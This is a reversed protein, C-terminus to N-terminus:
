NKQLEKQVAAGGDDFTWDFALPDGDADLSGGGDLRVENDVIGHYPGGAVAIDRRVRM